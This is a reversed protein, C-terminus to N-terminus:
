GDLPEEGYGKALELLRRHAKEGGGVLRFNKPPEVDQLHRVMHDWIRRIGYYSSQWAHRGKPLMVLDFDKNAEVLDSILQFMGGPHFFDDLMGQMILLKGELNSAGYGFRSKDFEADPGQYIDGYTSLRPDWVSYIAGVKYFDGHELLGRVPGHSGAWDVIGVRELDMYPRTAALQKIGAIHDNLDSGLEVRGYAHDHFAKSRFITGRGDIIVVIFGLEALALASWYYFGFPGEPTNTYFCNTFAVDIVPYKQTPDFGTPKFVAGRIETEGDSATLTVAEPWVWSQPLRSTDAEEVVMVEQGDRDFVVTEVPADLRLKTAIAFDCTPSVGLEEREAPRQRGGLFLRTRHVAADYDGGAVVQIESTDVNIRVLQRYYPNGGKERGAVQAFIERREADFSLVERVVWEGSTIRNKLNGSHLDYLYLHAWGSRESWWVVEATEPAPLFSATREFEFGFELYTGSREEFLVKSRGTIVDIAVVRARKMHRDADVFYATQSDNAWWARGGSFLSGWIVADPAARHEIPRVTEEEVDIIVLEFTAIHEDEPLAYKRFNCVPRVSGDAPVYETVPFSGVKREDTRCTLFYRSDPSWIGELNNEGAAELYDTMLRVRDPMKGYAYHMVGDDTLRRHERAGQEVLWVNHEKRYVSRMKDLSNIGILAAAREICEGKEKNFTWNRSGASFYVAGNEVDFSLSSIALNEPDFKKSTAKSLAAAVAQHDFAEVNTKAKADVIRFSKGGTETTRVYWFCNTEGIWTPTVEANRHYTPDAKAQELVRARNYRGLVSTNGFSADEFMQKKM